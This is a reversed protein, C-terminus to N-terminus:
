FRFNLGGYIGFFYPKFGGSNESFTNLQYKLMPSANIYLYSNLNYNLDIGINGSFNLDNLNSAEGLSSKKGFSTISIDNDYLFYTSFGGVINVGVKNQIIAYKAELPVEVYSFSQQLSGNKDFPSKQSYMESNQVTTSSVQLVAGVDSSINTRSKDLLTSSAIVSVNETAYSLDVNRIGSQLSLKNSIKYNVKLGYSISNNSTKNNSALSPDIPSGKSSSNLYVPGIASGISWKKDNVTVIKTEQKQNELKEILDSKEEEKNELATIVNSKENDIQTTIKSEEITIKDEIQKGSNEKLSAVADITNDKSSTVIKQNKSHNKPQYTTILKDETKESVDYSKIYNQTNGGNEDDIADNNSSSKSDKILADNKDSDTISNTDPIIPTSQNNNNLVFVVSFLLVLIAAAGGYRLWLPIIRKKKKKTLEKEIGKWVSSDPFVEYDKFKEQFLRDINKKDSM